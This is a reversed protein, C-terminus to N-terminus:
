AEEEFYIKPMIRFMYGMQAQRYDFQYMGEAEDYSNNLDGGWPFEKIEPGEESLFAGRIYNRHTLGGAVEITLFDNIKREYTM